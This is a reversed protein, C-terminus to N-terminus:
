EREKFQIVFVCRFEDADKSINSPKHEIEADFIVIRGPKYEVAIECEGHKNAFMTEGGWEKDWRPNVYYLLTKRGVEYYDTHFYFSSAMTGVNTYCKSIDFHQLKEAIPEFSKSDLFKFNNLDDISYPSLTYNKGKVWFSDQFVPKILYKSNYTFSSHYEREPPSFVDDYIDIVKGDSTLRRQHKM